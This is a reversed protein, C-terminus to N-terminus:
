HRIFSSYFTHRASWRSGFFQPLLIVRNRSSHSVGKSVTPFSGDPFGLKVITQEERRKIAHEGRQSKNQSPSFPTVGRLFIV